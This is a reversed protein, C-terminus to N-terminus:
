NLFARISDALRNARIVTFHQSGYVFSNGIDLCTESVASSTAVEYSFISLSSECSHTRVDRRSTRPNEVTDRAANFIVHNLWVFPHGAGGRQVFRNRRM